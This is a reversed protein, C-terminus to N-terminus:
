NSHERATIILTMKKMELIKCSPCVGRGGFCQLTMPAWMLSWSRRVAPQSTRISWGNENCDGSIVVV